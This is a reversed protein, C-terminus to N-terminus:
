APFPRLNTWFGWAPDFAVPANTPVLVHAAFLLDRADFWPTQVGPARLNIAFTFSHVNRADGTLRANLQPQGEFHIQKLTDSFSRLFSQVSGHDATRAGSYCKGTRFEPAHAIEGGLTLAAGALDARFQDLSWTDDAEFRLESQLNTFHCSEDASLPFDFNVQRLM